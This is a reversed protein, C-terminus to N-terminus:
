QQYSRNSIYTLRHISPVRSAIHPKQFSRTLAFWRYFCSPRYVGKCNVNQQQFWMTRREYRPQQYWPVMRRWKLLLGQYWTPYVPGHTGYLEWTMESEIFSWHRCICKLTTFFNLAYVKLLLDNDLWDGSRSTITDVSVHNFQVTQEWLSYPYCVRKISILVVEKESM